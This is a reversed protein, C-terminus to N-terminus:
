NAKLTSVDGGMEFTSEEGNTYIDLIYGSICEEEGIRITLM